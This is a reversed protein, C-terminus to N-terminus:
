IIPQSDKYIEYNKEKLDKMIKEYNQEGYTKNAFYSILGYTVGSIAVFPLSIIAVAITGIGLIGVTISGVYIALLSIGLGVGGAIAGGGVGGAIFLSAIIVHKISKNQYLEWLSTNTYVSIEKLTTLHSAMEKFETSKKISDVEELIKEPIIKKFIERTELNLLDNIEKESECKFIKKKIEKSNWYGSLLEKLIDYIEIKKKEVFIKWTKEYEKTNDYTEKYKKIDIKKKDSIAKEKLDIENNIKNFDQFIYTLIQINRAILKLNCKEIISKKLNWFEEKFNLKEKLLKINDKCSIFHINNEEYIFINKGNNKNLEEYKKKVDKRFTIM